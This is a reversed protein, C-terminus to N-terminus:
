NLYGPDCTGRNAQQRGNGFDQFAKEVFLEHSEEVTMGGTHLGIASLYRINRLLASQLQGIRTEPSGDDLGADLM